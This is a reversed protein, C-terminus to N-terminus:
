EARLARVRYGLLGPVGILSASLAILAPLGVLPLLLGAMVGGLPNTRQMLTRLLAFTRGRLPEPIIQMRM